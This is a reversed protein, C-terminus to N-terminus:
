LKVNKLNGGGQYIDSFNDATKTNYQNFLFEPQIHWKNGLRVQTFAGLSYGFKFEEDFSMGDIKTINAGGKVGFQFFPGKQAFTFTSISLFALISLIFKSKM